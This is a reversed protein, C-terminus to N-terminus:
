QKDQDGSEQPQSEQSPAGKRAKKVVDYALSSLGGACIGGILFEPVLQVAYLAAGGAVGLLYPTFVLVLKGAKSGYFFDSCYPAAKIAVVMFSVAFALSAYKAFYPLTLLEM